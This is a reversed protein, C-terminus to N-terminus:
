VTVTKYSIVTKYPQSEKIGLHRVQRPFHSHREIFLVWLELLDEAGLGRGGGARCGVGEVRM